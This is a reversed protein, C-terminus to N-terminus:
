VDIETPQGPNLWHPSLNAAAFAQEADARPQRFHTWGDYHIPILTHPTMAQAARIAEAADFTYRLPGSIGFRVGGMHLLATGVKARRAVEAVGRFWVTDGSIYLAGHQQGSWELLFGIVPGVIPRSLPPGHRAPTATVRVRLDGAGLETHQWPALGIARPLTRAAARTTIVTAAEATVSRGADDFNDAHQHHTLLVADLRGLGGPPLVPASTKTSGTGFGFSYKNGAPDLAPDTLLRLPGIELLVTATGIHTLRVKSVGDASNVFSMM